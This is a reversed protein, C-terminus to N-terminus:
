LLAAVEPPIVEATLDILMPTEAPPPVPIRNIAAVLAEAIVKDASDTEVKVRAGFKEPWYRELLWKINDSLVKMKKADSTGYLALADASDIEVLAEAMHDRCECMADCIMNSIEGHDRAAAMFASYSVEAKRCARTPLNGERIYEIAKMIKPYTVDPTTM